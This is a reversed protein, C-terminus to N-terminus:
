GAPGTVGAAVGSDGVSLSRTAQHSARLAATNPAGYPDPVALLAGSAVGKAMFELTEVAEPSDLIAELLVRAISREYGIWSEVHCRQLATRYRAGLLVKVPTRVGSGGLGQLLQVIPQGPELIAELADIPTLGRHTM